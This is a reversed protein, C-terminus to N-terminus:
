SDEQEKRKKAIAEWKLFEANRKEDAEKRTAHSSIYHEILEGEADWDRIMIQYLKPPQGTEPKPDKMRLTFIEVSDLDDYKLIEHGYCHITKQNMEINHTTITVIEGPAGTHRFQSLHRLHSRKVM